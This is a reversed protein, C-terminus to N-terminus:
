DQIDDGAAVVIMDHDGIFVMDVGTLEGGHLDTCSDIAICTILVVDDRHADFGWVVIATFREIALLHTHWLRDVLFLDTIDIYVSEVVSCIAAEASLDCKSDM